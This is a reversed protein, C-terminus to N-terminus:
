LQQHFSLAQSVDDHLRVSKSVNSSSDGFDRVVFRRFVLDRISFNGDKPHKCQTWTIVDGLIYIETMIDDRKFICREFLCGFQSSIVPQSSSKIRHLLISTLQTQKNRELKEEMWWRNWWWLSFKENEWEATNFITRILSQAPDASQHRLKRINSRPLQNWLWM